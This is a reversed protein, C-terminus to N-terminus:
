FQWREGQAFYAGGQRPLAVPLCCCATRLLRKANKSKCNGRAYTMSKILEWFSNRSLPISAQGSTDFPTFAARRGNTSRYRLVSPYRPPYISKSISELRIPKCLRWHPYISSRSRGALNLAKSQLRLVSRCAWYRDRIWSVLVRPLLGPQRMLPLTFQKV